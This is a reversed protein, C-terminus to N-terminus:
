SSLATGPSHRRKATAEDYPRAGFIPTSCHLECGKAPLPAHQLPALEVGVFRLGYVACGTNIGTM